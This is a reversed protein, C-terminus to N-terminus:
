LVVFLELHPEYLGDHCVCLAFVSCSLKDFDDDNLIDKGFKSVQPLPPLALESIYESPVKQCDSKLTLISVLVLFTVTEIDFESKLVAASARQRVLAKEKMAVIFLFGALDDRVEDIGLCTGDSQHVLDRVEISIYNYYLLLSQGGDFRSAAKVLINQFSQFIFKLIQQEEVHLLFAFM